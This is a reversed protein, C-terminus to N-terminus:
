PEPHCIFNQKFTGDEYCFLNQLTFTENELGALQAISVIKRSGDGFRAVQVILDIASAIQDRIAKSPLEMGSFLVLTELRSLADRPSNAHLTTLSGEHGTNMATLMDLAEAGRCEGVIIRDPRMRLANRVLDRIAVEGTGEINPPRAELRVVHPQNLKLEAADEITIIREQKPIFSSLLNLLTTKGSGTGGSVLINKRNHVAEDLFELMAKSASGNRILDKPLIAQCSFRRISIIPGELALPPIIINVRSGDGLRGDVMPSSEDIRRGLPLLIREITRQLSDRDLFTQDTKKLKGAEEVYIAGTGNVLIETLNPNKMMPEIPGLGIFEDLLEQLLRSRDVNTPLWGAADIVERIIKELQAPAVEKQQSLQTQVLAVLKIKIPHDAPEPASVSYPAVAGQSKPLDQLSKWVADVTEGFFGISLTEQLSATTLFADRSWRWGVWGIRKKPFFLQALEELKRELEKVLDMEPNLVFLLQATQNLLLLLYPNWRSGADVVIWDFFSELGQLSQLATSPELGKLAFRNEALSLAPVGDEGQLFGYLWKAQVPQPIKQLDILTRKSADGLYDANWDLLLVTQGKKQITQALSQVFASSGVRDKVGMLTIWRTM